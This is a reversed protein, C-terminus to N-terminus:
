RYRAMNVAANILTPDKMASELMREAIAKLDKKSAKRGAFGLRSTPTTPRSMHFHIGVKGEQKASQLLAQYHLQTKLSDANNM